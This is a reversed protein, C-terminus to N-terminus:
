VKSLQSMNNGGKNLDLLFHSNNNTFTLTLPMQKIYNYRYLLDRKCDVIGKGKLNVKFSSRAVQIWILLMDNQM